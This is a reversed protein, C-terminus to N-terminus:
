YKGTTLDRIMKNRDNLNKGAQTFPDVKKPAVPKPKVVPKPAVRQAPRPSFFRKLPEFDFVYRGNKWGM